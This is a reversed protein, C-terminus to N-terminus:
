LNMNTLTKLKKLHSKNQVCLLTPEEEDKGKTMVENEKSLTQHFPIPIQKLVKEIKEFELQFIHSSIREILKM